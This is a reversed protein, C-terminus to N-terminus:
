AWYREKCLAKHVSKSISLMNYINWQHQVCTEGAFRTERAAHPQVDDQHCLQVDTIPSDDTRLNIWSGQNDFLDLFLCGVLHGDEFSKHITDCLLVTALKTSRRKRFGFQCDSLLRNDELFNYLQDHVTREMIKSLTPLISIPRYNEVHEPNGSKFIPSIKASKWLSPVTNTSLSLNIIHTLPGSIEESCDKLM